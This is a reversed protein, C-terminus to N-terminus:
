ITQKYSNFVDITLYGPQISYSDIKRIVEQHKGALIDDVMCKKKMYNIIYNKIWSHVKHKNGLKISDYLYKFENSHQSNMIFHFDNNSDGNVYIGSKLDIYTDLVINKWLFVDYRYVCVIDYISNTEKEYAEKLEITKQITLAHSIGNFDNKSSCRELIDKEYIRNDEFKWKVPTYLKVISEELDTNWCHCFIDFVYDPNSQLIHKVISNYCAVYDVYRGEAYVNSNSTNGCEKSIAGRMCLAVRKM